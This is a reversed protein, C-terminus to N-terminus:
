RAQPPRDERRSVYTAAETQNHHEAWGAPTADNARGGPLAHAGRLDPSEDGPGGSRRRPGATASATPSATTRPPWSSTRPCRRRRPIRRPSCATGAGATGGFAGTLATFPPSLGEVSLRREPGRWARAAGARGRGRLVGSRHRAAELLRSVDAARLRAPRGPGPGTVPRARACRTGRCGGRGAITHISARAIWPNADLLKRAGAWRAPDDGGYTLCALRLFEDVLARETAVPGGTGRASVVQRAEEAARSERLSRRASRDYGAGRPCRPGPQRGVLSVHEAIM